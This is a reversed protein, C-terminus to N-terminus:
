SSLALSPQLVADTEGVLRRAGLGAFVERAERLAAAADPRGLALLCRGQGLLAHGREPVEGFSQWREAAEVYLVAAEAHEARAEALAARAGCLAHERLPFLPGVPEALWQALTIRGCAIATRVLEPASLLYVTTERVHPVPEREDLLAAALDPHGHALRARAVVSFAAAILQAEGSERAAGELWELEAAVQEADGRGLRM